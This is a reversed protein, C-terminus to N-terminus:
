CNGENLRTCQTYTYTHAQQRHMPIHAVYFSFLLQFANHQLVFCVIFFLNVFFCCLSASIPPLINHLPHFNLKLQLSVCITHVFSFYLYKNLYIASVSGFANSLLSRLICHTADFHFLKFLLFYM